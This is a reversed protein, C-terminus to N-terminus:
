REEWGPTAGAQDTARCGCLETGVPVYPRPRFRVIPPTLSPGSMPEELNRTPAEERTDPVVRDPRRLRARLQVSAHHRRRAQDQKVGVIAFGAFVAQAGGQDAYVRVSKHDNTLDNAASAMAELHEDTAPATLDVKVRVDRSGLWDM